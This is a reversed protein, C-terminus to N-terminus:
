FSCCCHFDIIMQWLMGLEVWLCGLQFTEIHSKEKTLFIIVLLKLDGITQGQVGLEVWM